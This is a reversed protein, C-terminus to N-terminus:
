YDLILFFFIHLLGYEELVQNTYRGKDLRKIAGHISAFEMERKKTKSLHVRQNELSRSASKQIQQVLEQLVQEKTKLPLPARQDEMRGRSLREVTKGLTIAAMEKVQDESLGVRQNDLRPAVLSLRDIASLLDDLDNGTNLAERKELLTNITDFKLCEYKPPSNFEITQHVIDNYNPPNKTILGSVIDMLYNMEAWIVKMEESADEVATIGTAHKLQFKTVKDQLQKQLLSVNNEETQLIEESPHNSSNLELLRYVDNSLAALSCCLTYDQNDIGQHLQQNSDLIRYVDSISTAPPSSRSRTMGTTTVATSLEQQILNTNQTISNLLTLQDGQISPDSLRRQHNRPLGKVIQLLLVDLVNLCIHKVSQLSEVVQESLFCPELSSYEM